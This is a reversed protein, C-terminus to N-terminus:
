ALTPMLTKPIALRLTLLPNVIQSIRLDSTASLLRYADPFSLGLNRRIFGISHGIGERAAETFNEASTVVMFHSETEVVPVNLNIGPVKEVSLRVKGAIEIGTGSLEGDGMCAHLDGLALNAGDVFVPFYVKSGPKIDKTDLNGGHNGPSANRVEGEAPAVGIVGVMLILVLVVMKHIGRSLLM